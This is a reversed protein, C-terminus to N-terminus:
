LLVCRDESAEGASDATPQDVARVGFHYTLAWDTKMDRSMQEIDLYQSEFKTQGNTTDFAEEAESVADFIIYVDIRDDAVSKIEHDLILGFRKYEKLVDEINTTALLGKIRIGGPININPPTSNYIAAWEDMKDSNLQEIDLHQGEFMVQGNTTEIAKEAKSVSDFVIYVDIRDEAVSEFGHGLIPEFRSYEKLVDKINTNALLGKIRIGQPTNISFEGLDM